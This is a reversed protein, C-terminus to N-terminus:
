DATNEDKLAPLDNRLKAIEGETKELAGEITIHESEGRDHDIAEVELIGNMNLHFRAGLNPEAKPAPEIGKLFFDDLLENNAAVPDNGEFVRIHVQTQNDNYTTYPKETETPIQENKEILPDLSGDHLEVGLTKPTVDVLLIGDGGHLQNEVNDGEDGLLAAQTAAGRAVVEDPNVEKSVRTEDFLDTVATHVQPMRTSGGVLLVNDLEAAEVDAEDLTAHCRDVTRSLLDDTMKQFQERTLTAEFNGEESLYPILVNAQSKQSLTHKAEVANERVRQMAELDDSVDVGTVDQHTDVIWEVIRDDWDEGGLEQDGGTAIVEIIGEQIEVISVDFTGGGLDYVLVDEADSDQKLGYALCAATPENIIREVDIGAIEGAEKTHQRERNGFYAPVTVVAGNVPSGLYDEADSVLRKLILASVENPKYETGDITVEFDDDGM